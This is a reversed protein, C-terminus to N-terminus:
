RKIVFKMYDVTGKEYIVKIFYVGDPNGTMDLVHLDDIKKQYMLVGTTNYVEFYDVADQVNRCDFNLVGTTPNPYIKIDGRVVSADKVDTTKYGMSISNAISSNPNACGCNAEPCKVTKASFTSGSKITISSSGNAKITISKYAVLDLKEGSNLLIADTFNVMVDLYGYVENVGPDDAKGIITFRSDCDVVKIKIRKNAGVEPNVVFPNKYNFDELTFKGGKAYLSITHIGIQDLLLSVPFGGKEYFVRNYPGGDYYQNKVSNFTVSKKQIDDYEWTLSGVGNVRPAFGGMPGIQPLHCVDVPVQSQPTQGYDVVDIDDYFCVRAGLPFELQGSCVKPNIRVTICNTKMAVDISFTKTVQRGEEDYAYLKAKYIGYSSMKFTYTTEFQRNYSQGWENICKNSGYQYDSFDNYERNVWLYWTIKGNGNTSTAKITFPMDTEVNGPNTNVSIKLDLTKPPLFTGVSLQGSTKALYTSLKGDKWSKSFRGYLSPGTKNACSSSGGRLDGVVQYNQNFLPAGSSGKEVTGEDWIVKLYDGTYPGTEVWSALVPTNKSIAIKKVNGKPHHISVVLPTGEGAESANWGAFAIDNSSIEGVTNKLKLLLYDTKKSGADNSVVEAGTASKMYGLPIDSDPWDCVPSEYRFLFVWNKPDSKGGSEREYCHNASLLFPRDSEIYNNEKNLLTGTCFGYNKDDVKECILVVSKIEDQWGVGQYCSTNIECSGSAERGNVKSQFCKSFIYVIKSASLKVRSRLGAPIYLEVVVENGNIFQTIFSNDERNNESTFAGLVMDRGKNYIFLRCGEPLHFEDFLFQYGEASDSKVNLVWLESGDNISIMQAQNFFDIVVPVEQGYINESSATSRAGEKDIDPVVVVGSNNLNTRIDKSLLQTAYKDNFTLPKGGNSIQAYASFCM